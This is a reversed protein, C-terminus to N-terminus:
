KFKYKQFNDQIEAIVRPTKSTPSASAIVM